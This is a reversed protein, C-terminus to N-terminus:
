RVGKAARAQRRAALARRSQRWWFRLRSAGARLPNGGHRLEMRAWVEEIHLATRGLRLATPRTRALHALRYHTMPGDFGMPRRILPKPGAWHIIRRDDPDIQPEGDRICFRAALANASYLPVLVQFPWARARIRGDAVGKFAMFNFIGQESFFAGPHDKDFKLLALYEDLDLLGRRAAFVGANFYPHGQWGFDPLASFVKEPDFYQQRQIVPTIEEHPENYILDYDAVPLGDFPDGWLVTDADVHIFREFPSHWFAVMKTLGYGYSLRSLEPHVDAQELTTVGYLRSLETTDFVRHKILCVPIDPLHERLSALCGHLLPRDGRYCSITVGRAPESM